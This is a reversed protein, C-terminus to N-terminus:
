GCETHDLCMDMWTLMTPSEAHHETNLLRKKKRFICGVGKRSIGTRAMKRVKRTRLLAFFIQPPVLCDGNPPIADEYTRLDEDRAPRVGISGVGFWLRCLGDKYFIDRSHQQSM